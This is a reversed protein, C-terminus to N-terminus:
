RGARAAIEAQLREIMTIADRKLLRKLVFAPVDFNPKAELRYVVAARSDEDTVIWSGEYRAFSRGCKDRFRILGNDENVDLVLHMKKSFMMFKATAEQEVVLGKDSREVIRSLNVDPMFRPIREFDTLVSVVTAASESVVFEASVRYLGDTESVDIKPEFAPAEMTLTAAIFVAVSLVFRLTRSCGAASEHRRNPVM